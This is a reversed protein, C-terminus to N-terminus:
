SEGTDKGIISNYGPFGTAMETVVGMHASHHNRGTLLAASGFYL